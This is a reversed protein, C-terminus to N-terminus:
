GIISIASNAHNEITESTIKHESNFKYENIAESIKKILKQIYIESDAGVFIIGNLLPFILELMFDRYSITYNLSGLKADLEKNMSTQLVRQMCLMEIEQSTLNKTTSDNRLKTNLIRGNKNVVSVVHIGPNLSIITQCLKSIELSQELSLPAM